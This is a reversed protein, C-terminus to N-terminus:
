DDPPKNTPDYAGNTNQWAYNGQPQVTCLTNYAYIPNIRGYGQRDLRLTFKQLHDCLAYMGPDNPLTVHSRHVTIDGIPMALAACLWYAIPCATTTMSIGVYADPENIVLDELWARFYGTTAILESVHPKHQNMIYNSRTNNQNSQIM